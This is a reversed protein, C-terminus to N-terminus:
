KKQGARRAIEAWLWRAAGVPSAEAATARLNAERMLTVDIAGNLPQLAELL